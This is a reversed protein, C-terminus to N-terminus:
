GTPSTGSGASRDAIARSALLDTEPDGFGGGGPTEIRLRDGPRVCVSGRWPLERPPGDHPILVNRGPLGPEGGALGPPGSTRRGTLLSLELEALFELERLVGDGGRRGGRGGSGRRVAFRRVRVPHRHELVEVDTMRTNTMHVQVADAGDCERTAGSGGAITEYYGFGADGFVLNNMTGQSCAALGLAQLLVDVVRQSTETNGGVVPPLSEPPRTEPHRFPDLLGHPIAIAIPELTGANLPLAAADADVRGILLRLAYLVAATVISRNANLNSAAVGATGAFDVTASGDAAISVAVAIESGDDLADRATLTQDARLSRLARRTASAAADRIRRMSDRVRDAGAAECLAIIAAAAQHNCAVQAMADAVNDDPSRSPFRASALLERFADGQPQGADVLRFDRIVVGEEALSTADPPLSGPVTGGIEAHHARSAVFFAPQTESPLFVPTVVTVDPLHSGGRAPDNTAIVDGPRLPPGSRLLEEIVQGMAGLHVPIHPANVVLRGGADFLGVSFDLREKVNASLSTSRLTQGAQEVIAALRRSDIELRVAEAEAAESPAPQGADRALRLAGSQADRSAHWGAAVLVTTYANRISAPGEIRRGEISTGDCVWGADGDGFEQPKDSRATAEFSVVEVPRDRVWGYIAAHREAFRAALDDGTATQVDISAETGAYRMRATRRLSTPAVGHRDRLAISAERELEDVLERPLSELPCLLTRSATARVGANGIGVASFLGALPEVAIERCGLRDAVACAHQGGAGGFCVLVDGAPDAGQGISVSRIAAAMSEDAIALCGAALEAVDIRESEPMSAIVARAAAEAAAADLPIPLADSDLRGLLLNCDTVTLPGGRGYCAPGPAAGASEPGVVLKVGDYRCVSGGGAAVTEIALSPAAIRVGAKTSEYERAPGSERDIRSVDTSTGGMDFAIAGGDGRSRRLTREAAVVGGAPGSLVSGAGRFRSPGVLGGDSTLLLLTSGPLAEEIQALYDRLVPALYADLVATETRPVFKMQGSADTSTSVFRFREAAREAIRREHAPNRYGNVLSVAVADCGALADLARGIEADGLPEIITGDSAIREAVGVVRQALPQPKRIAVAFLDPRSQDGIALTDEFGATVILGVEAGTRELLANTGRTTGLRLDVPPLPEDLRTRTLMRVALVPSPEGTSLAVAGDAVGELRGDEASGAVLCDGASWGEFFRDPYGSLRRDRGGRLDVPLAGSSLVKLTRVHGDPAVAVADTFTGGVDIAIRWRNARESEAM